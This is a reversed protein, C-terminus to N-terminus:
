RKVEVAPYDEVYKEGLAGLYTVKRALFDVDYSVVGAEWTAQLFELFTSRGSQDIRLAKVLAHEDFKPIENLGTVLPSGQQVVNGDKMIYVSQCSPLNWYNHRAGAQRLVEALYPFGGVKPRTSMALKQAEALKEVVHSM